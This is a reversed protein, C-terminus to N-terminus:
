ATGSGSPTVTEEYTGRELALDGSASVAETVMKLQPKGALWQEFVAKIAAQGVVAPQNPILLHADPAYFALLSDVHGSDYHVVFRNVAAAIATEAAKQDAAQEAMEAEPSEAKPRCAAILLIALLLRRM